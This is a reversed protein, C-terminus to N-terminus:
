AFDDYQQRFDFEALDTEEDPLEEERARRWKEAVAEVEERDSRYREVWSGGHQRSVQYPLVRGEAADAAGEGAGLRRRVPVSSVGAYLALPNYPRDTLVTTLAEEVVQLGFRLSAHPLPPMLRIHVTGQVGYTFM